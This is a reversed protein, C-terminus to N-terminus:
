RSKLWCWVLRGFLLSAVVTIGLATLLPLGEDKATIGYLNISLFSLILAPVAFYTTLINLREELRQSQRCQLIDHMERVENRVEQYLQDVVLVEKGKRYCRHHREM